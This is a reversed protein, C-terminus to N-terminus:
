VHARGIQGTTTDVTAINPIQVKIGRVLYSRTPIDSFQQADVRLGVLAANPYRLRARVIETYSTWTFANSLKPDTSDDTVRTVRIDVPKAGDFNILYNRQYLDGTRGSITDDILTTFGGGAYQVSIQLSVSAGLIDGQNNFQQLQPVSITIRASDVNPNSITRVVPFAKLVNIGVPIESEIDSALPILDQAQTGNRTYVSVNQFNFSGDANQLQTNNVYISKLGDKLGQIEGESILDIIQAYQTSDLGDPATTPVHQNGGGGKGGGGGGAGRVLNSM